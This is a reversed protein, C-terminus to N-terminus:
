LFTIGPKFAERLEGLTPCEDAVFVGLDLSAPEDQNRPELLNEDEVFHRRLANFNDANEVARPVNLLSEISHLFPLGPQTWDPDRLPIPM